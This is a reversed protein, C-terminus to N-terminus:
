PKIDKEKQLIVEPPVLMVSIGSHLISDEGFSIDSSYEDEYEYYDDTYTYILPTKDIKHEKLVNHDYDAIRASIYLHGKKKTPLIIPNNERDTINGMYVRPKNSYARNQVVDALSYDSLTFEINLSNSAHINSGDKDKIILKLPLEVEYNWMTIGISSDRLFSYGSSKDLSLHLSSPM